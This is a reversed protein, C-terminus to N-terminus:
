TKGCDLVLRETALELDRLGRHGDHYLTILRRALTRSGMSKAKWFLMGIIAESEVGSDVAQRYLTWAKFADGSGVAGALAFVNFGEKAAPKDKLDSVVAKEADKDVARGLEANLKGELVIFINASENLSAVLEPLAEKAEVNETVRNLLVIYKSSFLGQGGLHGEIASPDWSDAGIEEFAADPRKARLSDV